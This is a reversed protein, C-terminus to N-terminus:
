HLDNQTEVKSAQIRPGRYAGMWVCLFVFCGGIGPVYRLTRHLSTGICLTAIRIPELRISSNKDKRKTPDRGNELLPSMM